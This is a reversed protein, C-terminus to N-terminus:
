ICKQMIEQHYGQIGQKKEPIGVNSGVQQDRNKQDPSSQKSDPQFHKIM